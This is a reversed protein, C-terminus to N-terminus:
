GSVMRIRSTGAYQSPVAWPRGQVEALLIPPTEFAELFALNHWQKHGIGPTSHVEFDIGQLTGASSEWAIYFLTETTTTSSAHVSGDLRFRASGQSVTQLRSTVPKTENFSTVTTMVVPVANFCRSFPLAQLMGSRTVEISGSEILTGDALTYTGRELVLFGVVASLLEGEADHWRQVRMDFGTPGVQRIRIVAPTGGTASMANAIVIPDTFAASFDIRRWQSTVQVEGAEILHPQAALAGGDQMSTESSAGARRRPLIRKVDTDIQAVDISTGKGTAHRGRLQIGSPTFAALGAGGGSTVPTSMDAQIQAATLARNYIRLEDIRGKFYEGWISNGGIRLPQGSTKISGPLSRNGVLTGSVYLKLAAGDYTVALHRWANLPLQTNGFVGQDSSTYVYSNPRNTNSNAYLAYALQTSQQKLIVTRWGNTSGGSLATPYVWAELTMGTTLDLSPSDSVTVWDNVGDFVLAKGYQGSNSWQAGSITGHNGNSSADTVM